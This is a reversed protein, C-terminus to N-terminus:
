TYSWFRRGKVVLRFTCSIMATKIGNIMAKEDIAYIASFVTDLASM